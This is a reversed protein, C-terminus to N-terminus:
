NRKQQGNIILSTISPKNIIYPLIDVKDDPMNFQLDVIKSPLNELSEFCTFHNGLTLYELSQPFSNPEIELNYNYLKLNTISSKDFCTLSKTFGYGSIFTLISDPISSCNLEIDFDDGLDLYTLSEPLNEDINQNFKNFSLKTVSPPIVNTELPQNFSKLSLETISSPISKPILSHNFSPLILVQVSTPITNPLIPSNYLNLELYMLGDQLVNENIQCTLSPLSLHSVTSPFSNKQITQNFSDLKICKINYLISSRGIVQNFSPLQLQNCKNPIKLEELEKNFNKDSFLEDNAYYEDPKQLIKLDQNFNINSFLGDSTYYESKNLHDFLAQTNFRAGPNATICKQILNQLKYSIGTPIDPIGSGNTNQQVGEKTDKKLIGGALEIFVCGLSYIDSKRGATNNRLKVEPAMFSPSGVLSAFQSGYKADFILSCGFDLLVVRVEKYDIDKIEENPKRILLIHDSKIDRHIMLKRHIKQLVRTINLALDFLKEESLRPKEDPLEKLLNSISISNDMFEMYIFHNGEHFRHGYYKASYENGNLIDLIKIERNEFNEKKIVKIAVDGTITIERDWTKFKGDKKKAKFVNGFGGAGIKKVDDWETELYQTILTIYADNNPETM